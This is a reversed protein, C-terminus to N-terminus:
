LSNMGVAQKQISFPESCILRKLTELEDRLRAKNAVPGILYRVAQPALSPEPTFLNAPWVRVGNRLAAETFSHSTWNSPLPIWVSYSAPHCVANEEPLINEALKQREKAETQITEFIHQLKPDNMIYTFVDAILPPIRVTMARLTDMTVKYSGEPPVVFGIKLGPCLIKTASTVLFCRHPALCKIPPIPDPLMPGLMNDEVISVGYREAIAVIEKRRELSMNANTPNHLTPICFLAKVPRRKCWFEFADPLIGEKDIEAPLIKLHLFDAIGIIGNYTLSEAVISDGPDAVSALAGIIGNHAGVSLLIKTYDIELGLRTLWAAGARKHNDTESIIPFRLLSDIDPKAAMKNLIRGIDLPQSGHPLLIVGNGEGITSVLESIISHHKDFPGVITGRRRDGKILGKKEAEKYARTVTGLGLGMIDALERHTPLLTGSQLIGSCIDSEIAEAILRYVPGNLNEIKPIWNM